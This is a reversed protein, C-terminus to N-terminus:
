GRGPPPDLHRRGLIRAALALILALWALAPRLRWGGMLYLSQTDGAVRELDVALWGAQGRPLSAKVEGRPDMWLTHGDNTVRFVGRGSEAVRYRTAALMQDMETGIGYWAENSLVLFAEAGRQAQLRFPKEYVNEWCIAVGVQWPPREPHRLDPLEMPGLVPSPLFTPLLGFHRYIWLAFPKSGPLRGQFPLSEGFPVMVTKPLNAVLRGGSGFALTESTRVSETEEPLKSDVGQYFHAGTLFYAKPGVFHLLRGIFIRQFDIVSAAPKEELGPGRRSPRRLWGQADEPMVPYPFMTEAWVLLDPQVGMELAKAVQVLNAETVDEVLLVDNKELVDLNPQIGLVRLPRGGEAPAPSFAALVALIATALPLLWAARWRRHVLALPWAGWALVLLDLGPGGIVQALAFAWDYDALGLAPSAVPVGGMPMHSRFYEGAALALVGSEMAPLLRRLQRYLFAEGIWWLALFPAPGLPLLPHINALYSFALIWWLLGGLGDSWWRGGQEWHHIRPLAYAFALPGWIWGPLSCARIVAAFLPLWLLFRPAPKM